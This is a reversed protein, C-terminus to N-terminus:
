MPSCENIWIDDETIEEDWHGCQLFDLIEESQFSLNDKAIDYATQGDKNKIFVDTGADCLGEVVSMRLKVQPHTLLSMLPTNGNIDQANVDAGHNILVNLCPCFSGRKRAVIHLPTEKNKNRKKVSAGLKIAWELVDASIYEKCIWMFPTYGKENYPTNLSAGKKIADEVGTLDDNFLAKLLQEDAEKTDIM